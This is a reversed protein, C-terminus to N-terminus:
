SFLINRAEYYLICGLSRKTGIPVRANWEAVGNWGVQGTLSKNFAQRSVPLRSHWEYHMNRNSLVRQSTGFLSNM